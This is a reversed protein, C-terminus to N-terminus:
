RGGAIIVFAMIMAAAGFVGIAIGLVLPLDFRPRQAQEPPMDDDTLPFPDLLVADFRPRIAAPIQPTPKPLFPGLLAPAPLSEDVVLRTGCFVCYKWTPDLDVGCTGCTTGASAAESGTM